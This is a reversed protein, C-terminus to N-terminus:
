GGGCLVCTGDSVGQQEPPGRNVKGMQDQSAPSPSASGWPPPVLTGFGPGM